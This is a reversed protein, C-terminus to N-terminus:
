VASKRLNKSWRPRWLTWYGLQYAAFGVTLLLEAKLLWASDASAWVMGLALFVLPHLVFLVAHLWAESPECLRAHVFEDKTILVCSFACLGVYVSLAHPATAPVVVLWGYCLAASLTDLPHGIREWRPLGRRHHFIFEDAFMALMQSIVPVPLLPSM